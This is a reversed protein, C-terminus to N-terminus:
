RRLLSLLILPRMSARFVIAITTFQDISHFHRSRGRDKPRFYNTIPLFPPNTLTHWQNAWSTGLIYSNRRTFRLKKKTLQTISPSKPQRNACGVFKNYNKIVFPHNRQTFVVCIGLLLIFVWVPGRWFSLLFSGAFSQGTSLSCQILIAAIWIFRPMSRSIRWYFGVFRRIFRRCHLIMLTLQLPAEGFKVQNQEEDCIAM